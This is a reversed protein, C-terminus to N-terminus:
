VAENHPHSVWRTPDAAPQPPVWARVDDVKTAVLAQGGLQHVLALFAAQERTVAQGRRKVEIALFRGGPMVGLIDSSGVHGFHVVRAKGKHQGRVAGTNNRWALCGVAALYRLIERTIETERRRQSKQARAVARATADM